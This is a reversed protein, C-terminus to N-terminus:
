RHSRSSDNKTVDSKMEEEFIRKTILVEKLHGKVSLQKIATNDDSWAKDLNKSIAPDKKYLEEFMQCCKEANQYAKSDKAGILGNTILNMISKTMDSSQCCRDILQGGTGGDLSGRNEVWNTPYQSLPSVYSAYTDALEQLIGEQKKTLM